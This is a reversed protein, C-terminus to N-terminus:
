SDDDTKPQQADDWAKARRRVDERIVPHVGYWETGNRYALVVHTDLFTSVRHHLSADALDLTGRAEIDRLLVAEANTFGQYGARLEEIAAARRDDPVPVGTRNAAILLNRLLRLMDRLYGGSALALEDFAARDGLFWEVWGQSGRANVVQYLMDLGPRHPTYVHDLGENRERVKVCLVQEYNDFGETTGARQWRLWPPVTYIMHLNPVRMSEVHGRFLREVSDAVERSNTTLGRLHEISDYIVVLQTDEGHRERLALLCAGMFDHVDKRFAGVHLRTHERLRERFSIDTKLNLKIDVGAEAELEAVGVDGGAKAGIGLESAEITTNRVWHVFRAWYGEHRPDDGLLEPVDLADSLAGAAALLFDVVEVTDTMPLYDEMDCIVVKYTPDEELRQKLVRLQTSKGTGRHGSFLQVSELASFQIHTALDEVPDSPALADSAYLNVFAPDDPSLPRDGTSQYLAKLRGRTEKDLM